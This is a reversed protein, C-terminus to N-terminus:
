IIQFSSGGVSQGIREWSHDWFEMEMGCVGCQAFDLYCEKSLSLWVNESDVLSFKLFNHGKQYDNPLACTYM